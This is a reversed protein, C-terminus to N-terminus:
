CLILNEDQFLKGLRSIAKATFTVNDNNKIDLYVDPEPLEFNEFFFIPRIIIM